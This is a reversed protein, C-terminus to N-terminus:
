PSPQSPWGSARQAGQQDQAALRANQWKLSADISQLLKVVENVKWYWCMLERALMFVVFSGLAFAMLTGLAANQDM